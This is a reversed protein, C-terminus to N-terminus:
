EHRKAFAHIVARISAFGNLRTPSLMRDLRLEEALGREPEWAVIDQATAGEHLECLLVALGKVLPSDADVRFRCVGEVCEGVLWVRSSCGPVLHADTREADVLPAAKRGRSTIAALREHADEIIAYRTILQALRTTLM